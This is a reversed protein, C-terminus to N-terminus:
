TGMNMKDSYTDCKQFRGDSDDIMSDACLCIKHVSGEGGEAVKKGGIRRNQRSKWM